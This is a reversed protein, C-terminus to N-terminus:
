ENRPIVVYDAWIEVFQKGFYIALEETKVALRASVSSSSYSWAYYSYAYALGCNAGNVSSGGFLWLAHEKKWEESKDALEEETYLYFWPYYRYEDTTFQPIWGENLAEAITCLKMYAILHKELSIPMWGAKDDGDAPLQALVLRSFDFPTRGLVKCADEYSKVRETIPRDDKKAEVSPEDVLVPITVGNVEKWEVSKGDPVQLTVEKM